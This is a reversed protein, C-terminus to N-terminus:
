YIGRDVSSQRRGFLDSIPRRKARRAENRHAQSRKRPTALARKPQAVGTNYLPALPAFYYWIRKTRWSAMIAWMGGQFVVRRWVILGCAAAPKPTFVAEVGRWGERWRIPERKRLGKRFDGSIEIRCHFFFPLSNDVVADETLIRRV